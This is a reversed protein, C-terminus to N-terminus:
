PTASRGLLNVLMALLQEPTFPKKLFSIRLYPGAVTRANVQYGDRSLSGSLVLIPYDVNRQALLPLLEYGSMGFQSRALRQTRGPINNNLLDTILLDPDARSLDEWAKDGNQFTDIVVDKFKARVLKSVMELLLNEDDVHVIRLPRAKSQVSAFQGSRSRLQLAAEVPKLFETVAFPKQFFSVKLNPARARWMDENTKIDTSALTLSIVVIHYNVKREALAALMDPCKMGLHTIDTIFLDPETRSLERWASDGEAFELIELGSFLNRLLHQLIERIEALDDLIVIRRVRIAPPKALVLTDAVM